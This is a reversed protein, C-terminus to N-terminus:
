IASTIVPGAHAVAIERQVIHDRSESEDKMQKNVTTVFHPKPIKLKRSGNFTMKSDFHSILISGDNKVYGTYCLQRVANDGCPYMHSETTLIESLEDKIIPGDPNFGDCQVTVRAIVCNGDLEFTHHSQMTGDNEYRVTREITFGEPFCEQAFHPIGNPYRGFCPMGYQLVHCLPKWSMPLKGSECVAHISFDGHPAKSSGEGVVTFKQGNVSGDVLVKYTMDNQFLAAGGEM